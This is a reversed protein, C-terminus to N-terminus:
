ACRCRMEDEDGWGEYAGAGSCKRTWDRESVIPSVRETRGMSQARNNFTSVKQTMGLTDDEDETRRRESGDEQELGPNGANTEKWLRRSSFSVVPRIQEDGTSTDDYGNSVQERSNM